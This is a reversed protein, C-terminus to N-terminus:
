VLIGTFPVFGFKGNFCILTYHMVTTRNAYKEQYIFLIEALCHLLGLIISIAIADTSIDLQDKTAEDDRLKYYIYAQLLIQPFTEFTLQSVTRLRRFGVVDMQQMGFLM